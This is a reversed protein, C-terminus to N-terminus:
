YRLYKNALFCLNEYCLNQFKSATHQTTASSNGASNNAVIEITYSDGPTLGSKFIEYIFENSTSKNHAIYNNGLDNGRDALWM